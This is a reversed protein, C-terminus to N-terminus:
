PPSVPAPKQGATGTGALVEKLMKLLEAATYPKPLIHKVGLDALQTAYTTSALGSVAIIPLKADMGQLIRIAEPGEMVPMSMDTIVAAIEGARQAYIAVAEAGNCALIVRYGFVELIQKTMRRMPDEDDVVLLLEGNGPPREPEPTIEAPPTTEAQASLFVQFATGKGVESEARIFGDHSKIIALSTSLGLGSGKGFDKTTFFPDFINELVEPPIGTGSDKVELMCYRGPQACPNQQLREDNPTIERNEASITLVGGNPMADRANLCLNLLVQHLQTSDGMVTWLGPPVSTRIEIHRLFTEFVLNEIEGVLRPVEVVARKGDVGRAFSLIQRVMDAGRHASTDMVTLLERSGPDTIKMRLLDLSMMIPGLSNNLDHAIGGALTGISEMRQARLSQQELKKRETLDVFSAIAGTTEGAGNKLAAFNVLAPVRSGDPREIAVEVDLAPQGTRLVEVIPSEAPPLLTDDTRWM